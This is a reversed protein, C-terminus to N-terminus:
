IIFTHLYSSLWCGGGAGEDMSVVDCCKSTSYQVFYWFIFGKMTDNLVM